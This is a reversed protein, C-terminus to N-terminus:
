RDRYRPLPEVHPIRGCQDAGETRDRDGDGDPLHRWLRPRGARRQLRRSATRRRPSRGHLWDCDSAFPSSTGELRLTEALQTLFLPVGHELERGSVAPWPRGRVRDRTRGVINDRNLSIFEYLMSGRQERSILRSSVRRSYVHCQLVCSDRIACSTLVMAPM